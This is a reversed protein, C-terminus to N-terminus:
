SVPANHKTLKAVTGDLVLDNTPLARDEVGGYGYNDYFFTCRPDNDLLRNLMLLSSPSIDQDGQLEQIMVGLIQQFFRNLVPLVSLHVFNSTLGREVFHPLDQLLWM